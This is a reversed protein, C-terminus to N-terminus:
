IKNGCSACFKHSSKYKAGCQTCHRRVNIDKVTNVKQSLPMMKYETTHFPFFEFDKNVTTLKQDSSSGQEVRGTEISKKKRKIPGPPPSVPTNLVGADLTDMSAVAGVVNSTFTSVDNSM